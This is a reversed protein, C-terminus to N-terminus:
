SEARDARTLTSSFAVKPIENMVPAYRGSEQPWVSAMAEYTPRGMIHTGAERLSAAKWPGLLTACANMPNGVRLRWCVEVAPPARRRGDPPRLQLQEQDHRCTTSLSTEHSNATLTSKPSYIVPKREVAVVADAGAVFRLPSNETETITFLAAALKAPDGGQQGNM